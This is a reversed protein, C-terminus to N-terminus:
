AGGESERDQQAAGHEPHHLEEAALDSLGICVQELHQPRDAALDPLKEFAPARLPVALAERALLAGQELRRALPNVPHVRAPRQVKM